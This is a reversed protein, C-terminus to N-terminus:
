KRTRRVFLIALLLSVITSILTIRFFPPYYVLKIHNMGEMIPFGVFAYNVKKLPQKEGNVRVEWGREYPIPLMMYRDNNKNNYTATLKNGDWNMEARKATQRKAAALMQYNEKYLALDKLIYHGKPVRISIKGEKKVRITLDDIYTKYVSQNHKRTTRYDNVKLAFGQSKALNELHFSVYYDKTDPHPENIVLDIGGEKETVTLKHNKLTAGVTEISAKDIINSVDHVKGNATKPNEVIAGKLMAHERQLAPAHALDKEAFIQDTTRIFPLLNTNEFVAYNKSALIKKFGYPIDDTNGKKRMMYKGQLLSYLNARNGLTSYRSVSERGMDVKLDNYYFFLLDENLISSYASFGHFDQVIPTNNLYGVKWDIRYFSSPDRRKVKRLLKRQEQGGYKENVLYDKSVKNVSGKEFIAYQYMNAMIVLIMVIGGLMFLRWAKNQKDILFFLFGITFLVTLLIGVAPISFFHLKPDLYGVILYVLIVMLISILFKKHNVKNFHTLGASVAGGMTFAILYEWRYRPASFGNFASAVLPSFHLFILVMSMLAFLRFMRVKYLSFTFVFLLFLAPVILFTSQFLIDDSFDVIEIPFRYSPRYNNFYGYVAPVFAVASIGFGLLGSGLYLQLQRSRNTENEEFRVFGRCVVYIAMFILNIYAFYFNNFLTIAIAAILWASKAERIIKEVGFVLLPIWLFANAFFEWYIVHRFYMVTLGYVCAGTFAALWHCKMYRFVLTTIFLIFTLRGISSFVAAKAWFLIDAEGVLHVSQLLFVVVAELYFVFSTSFYFALQSYTGGGMGFQDNYFFNGSSFQEYLLKQFTVMQQLGDNPGVMYQNETWAKLFFLHALVAVVLSSLFLMLLSHKKPM